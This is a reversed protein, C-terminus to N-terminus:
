GRARRSALEEARAALQSIGTNLGRALKVVNEWSPNREGREIGGIYTWHLGAAHALEEQTMEAELRLTRVARGLAAKDPPTPPM